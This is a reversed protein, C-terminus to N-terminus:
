HQIQNIAKAAGLSVSLHKKPVAWMEMRFIKINTESLGVLFQPLWHRPVQSDAAKKLALNTKFSVHCGSESNFSPATM